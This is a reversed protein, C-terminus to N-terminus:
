VEETAIIKALRLSPKGLLDRHMAMRELAEEKTDFIQSSYVHSGQGRM